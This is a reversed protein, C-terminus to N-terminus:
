SRRSPPLTLAGLSWLLALDLGLAEIHPWGRLAGLGRSQLEGAPPARLSRFGPSRWPKQERATGPGSLGERPARCSKLVRWALLGQPPLPPLYLWGLTPRQEYQSQGRTGRSEWM